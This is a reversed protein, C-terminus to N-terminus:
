EAKSIYKTWYQYKLVNCKVYLLSVHLSKLNVKGHFTAFNHLISISKFHSSVQIGNFMLLMIKKKKIQKSQMTNKKKWRLRLRQNLTFSLKHSPPLFIYFRM